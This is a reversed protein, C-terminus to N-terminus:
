IVLVDYGHELAHAFCRKMEWGIGMTRPSSIIKARTARLARLPEMSGDTSGDDMVVIDHETAALMRRVTTQIKEGENYAFTAVLVRMRREGRRRRRRPIQRDRRTRACRGPRQRRREAATQEADRVRALAGRPEEAAR